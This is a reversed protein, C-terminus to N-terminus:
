SYNSIKAWIEAKQDPSLDELNQRREEILDLMRKVRSEFQRITGALATEPHIGSRRCIDILAFLLQGFDEPQLDKGQRNLSNKFKQPLERPFCVEGPMESFEIGSKAARDMIRYARMLSPMNAPVSEFISAKRSSQKEGQKLQHWNQIVEESGSVTQEGFVHPHRRIMKRTIGEAVDELDFLGAEHFMRAIFVIHFLVDGLEERIEKPEGKEIADTLEYVEEIVYATVSDPTQKKDWPCGSKGRLTAVLRVLANLFSDDKIIKSNEV